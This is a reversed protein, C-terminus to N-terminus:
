IENRCECLAKWNADARDKQYQVKAHLFKIFEDVDELKVYEGIDDEVMVAPQQPRTPSYNWERTPSYRQLEKM